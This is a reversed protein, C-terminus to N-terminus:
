YNRRGKEGVGWANESQLIGSQARILFLCYKIIKGIFKLSQKNFMGDDLLDNEDDDFLNTDRKLRLSKESNIHHNFDLHDAIKRENQVNQKNNNHNLNYPL